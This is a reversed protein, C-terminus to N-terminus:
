ESMGLLTQMNPERAAIDDVAAQAEEITEGTQWARLEAKSRIGMSQADKM